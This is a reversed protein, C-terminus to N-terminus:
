RPLKINKRHYTPIDLDEEQAVTSELEDFFSDGRMEELGLTGQGRTAIGSVLPETWAETTMIALSIGEAAAECRMGFNIWVGENMRQHLADMICEIESLTLTQDACIALLVGSTSKWILGKKMLPHHILADVVQSARNDGSAFASAFHCFGDCHRMLTQLSAYDLSCYKRQACINWVMSAAEILMMQGINFIENADVAEPNAEAFLRYYPMQIITDAHARTRKIAKEAIAERRQGEFPFPRTVMVLLPIGMQKAVRAVVPVSGSATGGGLGAVLFIFSYGEILSRIQGDSKETAQRGLEDDGGASLGKTLSSGLLVSKEEAHSELAQKDTDFVATSM